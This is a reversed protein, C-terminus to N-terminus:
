MRKHDNTEVESQMGPSPVSLFTLIAELQPNGGLRLIEAMAQGELVSLVSRVYEFSRTESEMHSIIYTKMTPTSPRKQLVDLLFSYRFMGFECFSTSLVKRGTESRIAHIIPFSFKGETLDEAFSKNETYQLSSINLLSICLLVACVEDSQLNMYDDRIQFLVGILNVLPIYDRCTHSDWLILKSSNQYLLHSLM